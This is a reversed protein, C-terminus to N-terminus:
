ITLNLLIVFLTDLIKSFFIIIFAVIAPIKSPTAPVKRGKTINEPSSCIPPIILSNLLIPIIIKNKVAIILNNIVLTHLSNPRLPPCKKGFINEPIHKPYAIDNITPIFGTNQTHITVVAKIAYKTFFGTATTNNNIIHKGICAIGAM